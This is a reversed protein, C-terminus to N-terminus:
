TELGFALAKRGLAQAAQLSVGPRQQLHKRLAAQYQRLLGIFKQKRSNASKV